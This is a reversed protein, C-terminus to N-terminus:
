STVSDAKQKMMKPLNLKPTVEIGMGAFDKTAM